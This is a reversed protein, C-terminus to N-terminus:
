AKEVRVSRFHACEDKGYERFGVSGLPFSCVFPRNHTSGDPMTIRAPLLQSELLRQDLLTIERGRLTVKVIVRTGSVTIRVGFWENLPLEDPLKVPPLIVWSGNIRFHPNIEIRSCQLM